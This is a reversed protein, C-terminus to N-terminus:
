WQASHDHINFYQFKVSAPLDRHYCNLHQWLRLGKLNHNFFFSLGSLALGVSVLFSTDRCFVKLPKALKPALDPNSSEMKRCSLQVLDIHSIVTKYRQVNLLHSCTNHVHVTNDTGVGSSNQGQPM